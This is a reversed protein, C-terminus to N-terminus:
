PKTCKVQKIRKKDMSEVVFTFGEFTIKDLKRPFYGTQELLFGAVTESEGKSNDFLEQESEELETIRYFDKLPTKGEFVFNKDDLKSYM